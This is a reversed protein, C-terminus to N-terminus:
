RYAAVDGVSTEGEDFTFLRLPTILVIRRAPVTDQDDEGTPVEMLGGTMAIPQRALDGFGPLRTSSQRSLALGVTSVNSMIPLVLLSGRVPDGAANRTLTVRTGPLDIFTGPAPEDAPDAREDFSLRVPADGATSEVVFASGALVSASLTGGGAICDEDDASLAPGDAAGQALTATDGDVDVIRAVFMGDCGAPPDDVTLEALDDVRVDLDALEASVAIQLAGDDYEAPVDALGPLAGEWTLFLTRADGGFQAFPPDGFDGTENFAVFPRPSTTVGEPLVWNELSTNPDLSPGPGVPETDMLRVLSGGDGALTLYWVTGDATAVAAWAATAENPAADDLGQCCVVPDSQAFGQDPVYAAMPTGPVEARGLLAYREERFGARFLRVLAVERADRRLVLAVPALGDGRDVQGVTVRRTPGGVDVVRPAADDLGGGGALEGIDLLSVSSKVADAVVVTAIAPDVAVDAPRAGDQLAITTRDLEESTEPDLAIVEIAGEQPLAVFVLLRDDVLAGDIAAPESSTTVSEGVRTWAAKNGEKVTRIVVIQDTDGDLALVRSPLGRPAALDSTAEGTLISLPFYVNPAQVFGGEPLLTVDFLRLQEIEPNSVVAITHQTGEQGPPTVLVVDGPRELNGTPQVPEQNCQNCGLAPVLFLLPLAPRMM